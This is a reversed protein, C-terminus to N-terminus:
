RLNVTRSSRTLEAAGQSVETVWQTEIKDISPFFDFLRVSVGRMERANECKFRYRGEVESHVGSGKTHDDHDHGHMDQHAAEVASMDLAVAKSECKASAFEFLGDVNKLSHKAKEVQTKQETTTARHEFGVINVAPSKFEIELWAGELALNLTMAGHVHAEQVRGHQHTRQGKDVHEDHGGHSSHANVSTHLGCMFLLGFVGALGLRCRRNETQSIEIDSM